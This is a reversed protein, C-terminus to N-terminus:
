GMWVKSIRWFGRSLPSKAEAGVCAGLLDPLGKTLTVYMSPEVLLFVSSATGAFM